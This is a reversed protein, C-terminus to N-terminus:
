SARMTLALDRGPPALRTNNRARVTDTFPDHM